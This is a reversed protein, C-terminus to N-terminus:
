EGIGFAQSDDRLDKLAREFIRRMQQELEDLTKKDSPLAMWCMQMASRVQQDVAHPGMMEQFRKIQDPDDPDFMEGAM